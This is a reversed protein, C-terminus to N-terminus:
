NVPGFTVVRRPEVAYRVRVEGAPDRLPYPRQDLYKAALDDINETALHGREPDNEDIVDVVRGYVTLWHYPNKPNLLMLTVDPRARLNRDKVRGATSNLFLHDGDTNVWVPTLQAHGSPTITALCATVPDEFLRRHVEPLERLSPRPDRTGVKFAGEHGPTIIDAIEVTM